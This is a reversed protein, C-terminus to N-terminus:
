IQQMLTFVVSSITTWVPAGETGQIDSSGSPKGPHLGFRVWSRVQLQLGEQRAQDPLGALPGASGQLAESVTDIM